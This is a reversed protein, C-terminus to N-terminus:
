VQTPKRAKEFEAKATQTTYTYFMKKSQLPYGYSLTSM